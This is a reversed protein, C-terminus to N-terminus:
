DQSCVVTRRLLVRDRAQGQWGLPGLFQSLLLALRHGASGERDRVDRGRLSNLQTDHERFLEM